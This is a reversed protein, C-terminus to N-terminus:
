NTPVNPGKPAPPPHPKPAPTSSSPPSELLSGGLVGTTGRNMLALTLSLLWSSPPSSPPPARRRLNGRLM